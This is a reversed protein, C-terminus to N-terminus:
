TKSPRVVLLPLKTTHLVRETVSGTIFHDIGGHGHTAMAILDFTGAGRGEAQQVIAEAVDPDNEVSATAEINLEALGGEDLRAILKSLYAQAEEQAQERQHPDLNAQSRLRGSSLPLDIVRLLHVEGAQLLSNALGYVLYVAPEFVAESFPSGDLPVLAHVPKEESLTSFIDGERLILVPIPAHRAIKQAVCGLTWRKFGTYGHSCMVVLNAHSAQAETIISPAVAGVHVKIDTEIGELEASKAVKELYSTAEDKEDEIITELYAGHQTFTEVVQLLTLSGGYARALRAAVPLASEALTSGDLPVLLRKFM